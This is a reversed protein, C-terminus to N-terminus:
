VLLIFDGYRALQSDHTMLILPESLAQAVLIRDFPDPHLCPLEEVKAAHEPSVPLFRYGSKRFHHLSEAGSVPMTERKLTHKISIEWVTAASIYIANKPDLILDCAKSPLRPDDAIAWLAIHTDLLLRL